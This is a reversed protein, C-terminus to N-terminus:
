FTRLSSLLFLPTLCFFVRHLSIQVNYDFAAYKELNPLVALPKKTLWILLFGLLRLITQYKSCKQDDECDLNVKKTPSRFGKSNKWKQSSPAAVELNRALASV